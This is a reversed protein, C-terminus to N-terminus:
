APFTNLWMRVIGPSWRGFLKTKAVSYIDIADKELYDKAMGEIVEPHEKMEQFYAKAAEYEQRPVIGFFMHYQFYTNAPYKDEASQYILGTHHLGKISRIHAEEEIERRVNEELIKIVPRRRSRIDADKGEMQGKPPEWTKGNAGAGFKKVVIFKTPDTEGEVYLFAVSRLYVRWGEIPHEIYAYQKHPMFGFKNAGRILGPSFVNKVPQTQPELEPKRKPMYCRVSNHM